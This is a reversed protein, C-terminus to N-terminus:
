ELKGDLLECIMEYTEEIMVPCIELKNMPNGELIEECEYGGFRDYFWDMLSSRLEKNAEKPDVMYLLAVGAALTGCLKGEELGNCFGGMARILDDNEKELSELGLGMIIQSCCYGKLKFEFIRESTTREM